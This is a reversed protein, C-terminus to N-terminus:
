FDQLDQGIPFIVLFRPATDRAKHMPLSHVQNHHFRIRHLRYDHM